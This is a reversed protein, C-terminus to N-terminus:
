TARKSSGYTIDEIFFGFLNNKPCLIVKYEDERIQVTGVKTPGDTRSKVLDARIQMLAQPSDAAETWV